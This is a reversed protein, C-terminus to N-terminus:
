EQKQAEESTEEAAPVDAAAEAEETTEAEAEPEPEPKKPALYSAASEYFEM